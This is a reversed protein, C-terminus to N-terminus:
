SRKKVISSKAQEISYPLPKPYCTVDAQEALRHVDHESTDNSLVAMFWTENALEANRIIMGARRWNDGIQKELVDGVQISKKMALSFSFAARKNKGLFRTRAVVEQGMYCGKDFDIGNIAQVNLMQPVYEHIAAGEISPIASEIMIADYVNQSYLPSNEKEIKLMLEEALEANLVVHYGQRLSDSKFAMGADSQISSLAHEPLSPFYEGLVKTALPDSIFFQKYENDEDSIDVKSFVGYKNLEALSHSAAGKNMLMIIGSGLRAVHGVSWTKGKNDCHAYHRVESDNLANINVTVQGHLYSDAQEGVLKIATNDTLSIAYVPPLEALTTLRTM